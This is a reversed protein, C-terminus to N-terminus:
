GLQILDSRYQVKLGSAIVIDFVDILLCIVLRVLKKLCFEQHVKVIVKLANQYSLRIIDSQSIAEDLIYILYFHWLSFPILWCNRSNQMELELYKISKRKRESLIRPRVIM